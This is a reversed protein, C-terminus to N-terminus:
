CILVVLLIGALVGLAGSIKNIRDAKKQQANYEAEISKEWLMINKIQMDADMYCLWKGLESAMGIVEESLYSEERLIKTSEQWINEFSDRREGSLRDLIGYLWLSCAGKTKKAGQEIIEAVEPATYTLGGKIIGAFIILEKIDKTRNNQFSGIYAGIGGSAVIIFAAGLVRIYIM